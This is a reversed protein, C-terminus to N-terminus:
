TNLENKKMLKSIHLSKKKYSFKGKKLRKHIACDSVGFYRGIEVLTKEPNAEVYRELSEQDVKGKRNGRIKSSIIGEREYDIWWKSVASTSINFIKSASVQTNGSKIHEIVRLRLDTSYPKTSM